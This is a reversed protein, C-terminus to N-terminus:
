KEIEFVKKLQSFFYSKCLVQNPNVHIQQRQVPPAQNMQM